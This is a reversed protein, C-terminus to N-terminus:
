LHYVHCLFRGPLLRIAPRVASSGERSRRNKRKWHRNGNAWRSNEMLRIYMSSRDLFSLLYLFALFIVLRRDFKKVVASDEDETYEKSFTSARNPFQPYVNGGEEETEIDSVDTDAEDEPDDSTKTPSSLDFNSANIRRYSEVYNRERKKSKPKASPEIRGNHDLPM